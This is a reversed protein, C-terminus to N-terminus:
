TSVFTLLTSCSFSCLINVYFSSFDKKKKRKKSTVKVSIDQVILLMNNQFDEDANSLVKGVLDKARTGGELCNYFEQLKLQEPLQGM